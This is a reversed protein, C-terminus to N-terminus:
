LLLTLEEIHKESQDIRGELDSIAREAAMIRQKQENIQKGCKEIEAKEDDIAIAAKLKEVQVDIDKVADRKEGIKGLFDMDGPELCSIFLETGAPDSIVAGFACFLNKILERMQVIHKELANIRKVPNGEAGLSDGIQKREGKLGSLEAALDTSSQRAGLTNRYQEELEFNSISESYGSLIFKGGATKFLRSLNDQNKGLFSRLAMGKANRGVKVFLNGDARSELEDLQDELAKIKSNLEGYQKSYVETQGSFATDEFLLKGLAAYKEELEKGQDQNQKEKAAIVEELAKLRAIDAEIGRILEESEAIDKLQKVYELAEKSGRVPEPIDERGALTNESDEAYVEGLSRKLLAGGLEAQLVNVADLIERKKLGLDQILKKREDM